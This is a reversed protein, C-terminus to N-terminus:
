LIRSLGPKSREVLDRYDRYCHSEDERGALPSSAQGLSATRFGSEALGLVSILLLSHWVRGDEDESSSPDSAEAATEKQKEDGTAVRMGFPLRPLNSPQKRQKRVLRLGVKENFMESAVMACFGDHESFDECKLVVMSLAEIDVVQACLQEASREAIRRMVLHSTSPICCGEFEKLKAVQRTAGDVQVEEVEAQLMMVLEGRFRFQTMFHYEGSAQCMDVGVM